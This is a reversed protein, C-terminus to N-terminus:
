TAPGVRARAAPSRPSRSARSLAARGNPATAKDWDDFNLLDNNAVLQLRITMDDEYVQSVRNMLAVKAATVFEPGGHYTSYGPDTILALRYTRLQDGTTTPLDKQIDPAHGPTEVVKDPNQAGPSSWTDLVLLERVRRPRPRRLVPRHVVLWECVPGLGPLRAALPGRSDDRGNYTKIEPHRKALGPAM